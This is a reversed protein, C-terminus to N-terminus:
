IIELIFEKIKKENFIGFFDKDFLINQFTTKFYKLDEKSAKYSENIEITSFQIKNNLINLKGNFIIYLEENKIKYKIKFKKLLGRKDKSNILCKFDLLPYDDLLNVDGKCNIFSNLFSATKTFTLRGFALKSDIKLNSLLGRNFRKADYMLIHKTNIKKILDKFNLMQEIDLNLILNSNIQNIKTEFNSNFYPALKIIGSADFSLEKDRFYFNKFNLINKDFTFESKLNTKLIKGKIHGNIPSKLLNKKLNLKFSIGTNLLKIDINRLNDNLNVKFNKGFIKGDILNKKYGYNSFNIGRLNILSNDVEKIQLNLNKIYIRKNLEFINKWFIKFNKFNLSSSNNLLKIKRVEFNDDNYISLLKPYIILKETQLNINNLKLDADLNMLELHPTPFSSFKINKINKINLGYNQSIYNKYIDKKEEYDFFKPIFLFLVSSIFFIGFLYRIFFV